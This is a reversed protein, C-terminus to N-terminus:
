PEYFVTLGDTMDGFTFTDGVERLLIGEGSIIVGGDKSEDCVDIVHVVGTADVEVLIRRSGDYPPYEAEFVSGSPLHFRDVGDFSNDMEVRGPM